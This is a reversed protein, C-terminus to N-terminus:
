APPKADSEDAQGGTSEAALDAMRALEDPTATELEALLGSIVLDQRDIGRVKALLRTKMGIEKPVRATLVTTRTM